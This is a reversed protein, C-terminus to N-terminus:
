PHWAREEALLAVRFPHFTARMVGAVVAPDDAMIRRAAAEPGKLIVIGFTRDDATTTRGALLVTGAKTLAELYTFHRSVAEAEEATPGDSLMAPRTPTIRYVFLPDIPM